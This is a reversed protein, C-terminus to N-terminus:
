PVVSIGASKKTPDVDLALHRHCLAHADDGRRSLGVIGDNRRGDCDAQSSCLNVRTISKARNRGSAARLIEPFTYFAGRSTRTAEYEPLIEM